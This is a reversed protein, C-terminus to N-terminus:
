RTSLTKHAPDLISELPWRLCFQSGQGPESSFSISAKLQDTALTHVIHLGLGFGGIGHKTTFFADFIRSQLEYPIGVGDDSYTMYLHSEDQWIEFRMHGSSRGEFAHQLSNSVFQSVIQGIAGPYTKVFISPAPTLILSFSKGKMLPSLATINESLTQVLDFSRIEDHSQDFAVQKFSKVLSSARIMCHEVTLAAQEVIAALQLLANKSIKSSQLMRSLERSEHGLLHTASLATGVPGSLEQAVGSLLSGLSALKEKQIAADRATELHVLAQELAETRETVREELHTSLMLLEQTNEHSTEILAQLSKALNHLESSSNKLVLPTLSHLDTQEAWSSLEELPATFRSLLRWLVALLLLCCVFGSGIFASRAMDFPALAHEIPYHIAVVWHSKQMPVFSSIYSFSKKHRVDETIGTISQRQLMVSQLDKQKEFSNLQGLTPYYAGTDLLVRGRSDMLHVFGSEGVQLQDLASLFSNGQIKLSAILRGIPRGQDNYIPAGIEIVPCSGCRDSMFGDSVTGQRKQTMSQFLAMNQEIPFGNVRKEPPVEPTTQAVILRDENVFRLGNDFASKLTSQDLLTQLQEPNEFTIAPTKKGLEDLLNFYLNLKADLETRISSALITERESITHLFVQQFYFSAAMFLLCLTLVFLLISSIAMQTRISWRRPIQIWQYIRQQLPMPIMAILKLRIPKLKLM